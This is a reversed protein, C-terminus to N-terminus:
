FSKWRLIRSFLLLLLLGIIFVFVGTASHLITDPSAADLGWYHSILVLMSVRLTNSIIAIPIALIFLLWKRGILMDNVHAIIAGLSLFAILSRLGSCPSGVLLKGAPIFINFGERYIPIGLMSVIDVGTKAALIKLPFSITTIFALPLPFMFILFIIPFAIVKNIEKGLFFLSTGAILLFISYGSISFIYFVTGVIHFLSAILILVLGWISYEVNLERLRDRKLWILFGTVLPIIFGHSYYSDAAIFRGYMWGLIKHYATIFLLIAIPLFYLHIQLKNIISNVKM